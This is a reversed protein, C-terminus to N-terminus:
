SFGYQFSYVNCIAPQGAWPPFHFTHYNSPSEVASDIHTLHKM